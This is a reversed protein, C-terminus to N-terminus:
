ENGYGLDEAIMRKRTIGCEHAWPESAPKDTFRFNAVDLPALNVDMETLTNSLLSSIM